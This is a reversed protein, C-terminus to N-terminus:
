RNVFLTDLDKSYLMKANGHRYNSGTRFEVKTKSSIQPWQNKFERYGARGVTDLLWQQPDAFIESDDMIELM